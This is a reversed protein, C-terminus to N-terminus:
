YLFRRTSATIKNILEKNNLMRNLEGTPMFMTELSLDFFHAIKLLMDTNIKRKGIAHSVYASQFGFLVSIKSLPINTRKCITYINNCLNDKEKDIQRNFQELNM